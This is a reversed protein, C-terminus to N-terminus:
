TWVRYVHCVEDLGEDIDPYVVFGWTGRASNSIINGSFELDVISQPETATM